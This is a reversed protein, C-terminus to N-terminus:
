KVTQIISNELDIVENYLHLLRIAHFLLITAIVSQTTTTHTSTMITSAQLTEITILAITTFILVIIVRKLTITFLMSMMTIIILTM